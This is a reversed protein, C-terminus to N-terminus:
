YISFQRKDWSAFSRSDAVSRDILRETMGDKAAAKGGGLKGLVGVEVGMYVVGM